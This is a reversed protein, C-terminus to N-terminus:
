SAVPLQLQHTQRELHGVTALVTHGIQAAKSITPATTAELPAPLFQSIASLAFSYNNSDPRKTAISYAVTLLGSPSGSADFASISPGLDAVERSASWGSSGRVSLDVPSDSSGSLNLSWLASTTGDAATLVRVDDFLGGPSTFITTPAAWGGSATYTDGQLTLPKSDYGGETWVADYRGDPGAAVRAQGGHSDMPAADAPGWAGDELSAADLGGSGDAWM